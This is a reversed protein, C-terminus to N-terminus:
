PTPIEEDSMAGARRAAGVRRAFKRAITAMPESLSAGMPGQWRALAGCDTCHIRIEVMRFAPERNEFRCVKATTELKEHACDNM